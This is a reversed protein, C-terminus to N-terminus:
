AQGKLAQRVLVSYSNKRGLVTLGNAIPLFFKKNEAVVLPALVVPMNNLITWVALALPNIGSFYKSYTMSLILILLLISSRKGHDSLVGSFILILSYVYAM